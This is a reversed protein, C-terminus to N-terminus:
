RLSPPAPTGDLTAEDSRDKLGVGTAGARRAAQALWLLKRAADAPRLGEDRVNSICNREADTRGVRPALTLYIGLSDPSSLGPREGILMAVMPAGLVQGIEDGLAVRAQRAVVVPAWTWGAPWQARLAELLPPLQRAVASSSLGDGAVLLLETRHRRRLDEDALRGAEGPGLRRGLDPRLLYTARDPAASHTSETDIDLTKLRARLADVDLPLHVADRAMAHAAQFDLLAQTPLSQGSRGLAVRASTRRQLGEWADAQVPPSPRTPTNM